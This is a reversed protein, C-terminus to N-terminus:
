VAQNYSLAINGFSHEYKTLKARTQLNPTSSKSNPSNDKSRSKTQLNSSTSILSSNLLPKEVKYDFSM